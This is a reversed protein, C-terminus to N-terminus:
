PRSTHPMPHIGARFIRNNQRQRRLPHWRDWDTSRIASFAAEYRKEPVGTVAGLAATCFIYRSGEIASSQSGNDVGGPANETGPLFLATIFPIECARGAPFRDTHPIVNNGDAALGPQLPM